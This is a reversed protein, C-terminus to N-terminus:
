MMERARKIAEQIMSKARGAQYDQNSIKIEDSFREGFTFRIRKGDVPIGMENMISIPEIGVVTYENDSM